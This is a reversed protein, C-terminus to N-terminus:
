REVPQTEPPLRGDAPVLMLVSEEPDFRGSTPEYRGDQRRTLYLLYNSPAVGRPPEGIVLEIPDGVRIGGSVHHFYVLAAKAKSDGKLRVLVKFNTVAAKYKGWGDSDWTENFRVTGVPKAIVVLDAKEVLDAPRILPQQRALSAQPVGILLCILAASAVRTLKM